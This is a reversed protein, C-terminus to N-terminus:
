AARRRQQMRILGAVDLILAVSGDALITAGSVGEIRRYHAELSKVVAQQQGVLEDVLLGVQTGEAEVVVILGEHLERRIATCGFQQHLRVIPVYADRFRFLEGSGVRRLADASLRVSEVISVLPVVYCEGGVMARLGDIIALTLPLTITFRSGQGPVSDVSVSGGLDTVNRRVVDMGVGRGSLDTTVAATSFGPQFILEHVDKESIGETTKILGKQLAKALIADSDLGAGDDEIAVVISGGHHFARLRLTGVESKGSARRQEPKELGHDIANRVLHVLPDGIKELVTKDLETHEGSLELRVQKGLKQSLDRVMRPFRNFVSAISLMRIGLVSEQLDRTHRALQALGQELMAQRASANEGDRFTDLMSQTIVLEGVLNILRDIKDIPVRVSGSEAHAQVVSAPATNGSQPVTTAIPVPRLAQRAEIRLECEDQVWDFVGDIDARRVPGDLEIDWGLQCECPNLAALTAPLRELLPTVRLTGMGALERILRLPDNGGALMDPHPRLHISWGDAQDAPHQARSTPTVSAHGMLNALQHRLAEATVEDFPEGTQVCAFMGRLCDVTRLLLEVISADIARQGGRMEDLLSEVEHTFAAIHPFGFTAAGGKISHAARFITHVLEMDVGADLALLSSEMTGLGELSEEIFAQQFHALGTNSM